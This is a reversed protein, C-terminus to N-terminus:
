SPRRYTVLASSAFINLRLFHCAANFCVMTLYLPFIFKFYDEGRFFYTISVDNWRQENALRRFGLWSCHDFYVPYGTAYATHPRVWTILKKQLRNGVLRTAISYPHFGCPILHISRGDQCLSENVNKFAKRVDDVHEWLFQSFVLDYNSQPFDDTVSQCYYNSYMGQVDATDDIDLGDYREFQRKKYFPRNTGGIELVKFHPQSANALAESFQVSLEVYHPLHKKLFAECRNSLRRNLSITKSLLKVIPKVIPDMEFVLALQAM